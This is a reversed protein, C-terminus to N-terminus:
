QVTYTGVTCIDANDQLVDGDGFVMRLDYACGQAAGITVQGSAGAALGGAALMNEEWNDNGVPSAYFETLETGTLNALTFTVDDALAPSALASATAIALIMRLTM